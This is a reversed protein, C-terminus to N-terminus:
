SELPPTTHSQQTTVEGEMENEHDASDVHPGFKSESDKEPARNIAYVTSKYKCKAMANHGCEVAIIEGKGHRFIFKRASTDASAPKRKAVSGSSGHRVGSLLVLVAFLGTGFLACPFTQRFHGGVHAM